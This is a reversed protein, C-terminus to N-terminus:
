FPKKGFKSAILNLWSKAKLRGGSIAVRFRPYSRGIRIIILRVRSSRRSLLVLGICLFLVGQLIPLFLGLFGLFIFAWGAIVILYHGPGKRM